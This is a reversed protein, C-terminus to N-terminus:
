LDVQNSTCLGVVAAMREKYAKTQARFETVYRYLNYKLAFKLSV